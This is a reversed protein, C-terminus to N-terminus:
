NGHIKFYNKLKNIHILILYVFLKQQSYDIKM